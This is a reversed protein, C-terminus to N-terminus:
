IDMLDKIQTFSEKFDIESNSHNIYIVANEVQNSFSDSPNEEDSINYEITRNILDFTVSSTLDAKQFVFNVKTKDNKNKYIYSIGVYGENEDYFEDLKNDVMKVKNPPVMHEIDHRIIDIVFPVGKEYIDLDTTGMEDTILKYGDNTIYIKYEEENLSSEFNNYRVKVYEFEEEFGDDIITLENYIDFKKIDLELTKKNINRGM